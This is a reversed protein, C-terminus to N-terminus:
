ALHKKFFGVTRSWALDAAEKNYRQESTDNNFAHNVEPYMHITYDVSNAKLAAEYGPVGKNIRDDLAAYHMMVPIKVKATEEDTLVSGYYAVTASVYNSYAAAKNTLSGGWCFGTVGMKRGDVLGKLFRTSAVMNKVTMGPELKGIMDRAVDQDGPTGGSPSLFDPALAVFGELAMRRAVDRIHDNLGRNEHIVLVAQRKGAEKPEALYGKMKGSEGDYTIEGTKLRSDGPDSIAAAAYNPAVAALMVNVTALSGVALTAKEMFTRRDIKGHTFDDFLYIFEQPVKVKQNM